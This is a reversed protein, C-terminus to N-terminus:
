TVELLWPKSTVVLVLPKFYIYLLFTEDSFVTELLATNRPKPFFGMVPERPHFTKTGGQLSRLPM